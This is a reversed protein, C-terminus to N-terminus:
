QLLGGVGPDLLRRPTATPTQPILERFRSDNWLGRFRADSRLASRAAEGGASTAARLAEFAADVRGLALRTAASDLQVRWDNSRARLYVTYAADALDARRMGVSLKALELIVEPPLQARLLSNFLQLLAGEEGTGNYIQLLEVATNIDTQGSQLSQELEAKRRFMQDVRDIHTLLDRVSDNHIDEAALYAVAERADAMRQQRLYLEALRFVAEPSLPYLEVAQKFAYEAEAMEGRAAYLGAIACRLKSFTKRAVVDRVFKEDNVLRKVYWDWFDRDNKIIEATLPTPENNLKLILGHPTLYPYMWGIVYSEEVFFERRRLSGDPGVPDFPVVAAGSWRTSEDTKLETVYQNQDFIQRCLIGNIQMVGGVGQVQMRGDEEKVDAGADISGSKVAMMYEGFARNSDITSPIWIQDGYLDRMVAMYTNDALANQTILYVDPRVQPCYIMYTPVFRGPDTGGFFIANTGMPPPYAPNPYNAWEADFKAQDQGCYYWLDEKIGEVGRLQWNGFQWGFDHGNQESGGVVKEQESSYYNKALLVMPLALVMLTGAWRTIPNNKVLSQFGAMLLLLGYGIWLAYIAHSQIYQVRAIFLTQLDLKPNQLIVFILGVGVFAVLTTAVWHQESSLIDFDVHYKRRRLMLVAAVVLMPAFVAGLIIAVISASYDHTVLSLLLRLDIFLLGLAAGIGLLLVVIVALWDMFNHGSARADRYVKQVFNIAIITLGATIILTLSLTIISMFTYFVPTPEPFLYDELSLLSGIMALIAAPIIMHVTRRGTRIQWGTFPLFGIFVLPLLFQSKLDIFFAKAKLIFDGPDNLVDVLVVREYQGRTIAHRFGEWIRPYGWNIPPNQESSIPMYLYFSLGLFMLLYTACVVKGNPLFLGLLAIGVAYVTWFWFGINEPGNIWCWEPSSAAMAKNLLVMVLYFVGVVTFDRALRINRLFIALGMALGMFIITQHNTMGLGYVFSTLFLPKPNEPEAMWRYLFLLMLTQFVINLSYVEAIVAQSWMGQSFALLLGASIGAVCSFLSETKEGLIEAENRIGRIFNMGSCSVLLALVGCALAGAFASFFNVAWAPNPYGHYTVKHFLWQFAWTLLSWIPYGPPHPVGLYDSAVILEGSDELGVTPQLTLTYVILAILFTLLAAIWDARRFFPKSEL